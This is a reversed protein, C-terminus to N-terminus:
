SAAIRETIIVLEAATTLLEKLWAKAELDIRRDFYPRALVPFIQQETVLFNILVGRRGVALAAMGPM